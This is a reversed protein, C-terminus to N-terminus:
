RDVHGDSGACGSNRWFKHFEELAEQVEIPKNKGYVKEVEQVLVETQEPFNKNITGALLQKGVLVKGERVLIQKIRGGTRSGM